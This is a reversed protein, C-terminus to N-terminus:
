KSSPPALSQMGEPSFDQDTYNVDQRIDSGEIETESGQAGRQIKLSAAVPRDKDNKAVRTTEIRRVVNSGAYKEVRLPVMRKTDIWSRVKSYSGAGGKSELIQCQTHDVEEAGVIAQQDWAFFNEIVDEYSLDSGFMLDKMSGINQVGTGPIFVKGTAKGGHKQLLVSEGKRNKPYLVQYLIDSGAGTRRSKLQLQLTTRAGGRIEMRLRIFSSGDNLAANMSAALEKANMTEQARAPSPLFAAAVVLASIAVLRSTSKM